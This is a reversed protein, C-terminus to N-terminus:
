GTVGRAASAAADLKSRLEAALAEVGGFRRDVILQGLATIALAPWEVLGAIGAGLILGYMLLSETEPTHARVWAWVAADDGADLAALLDPPTPASEVPLPETATPAIVTDATDVGTGVGTGTPPVSHLDNRPRPPM